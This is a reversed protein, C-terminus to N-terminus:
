FLIMTSYPERNFITVDKIYRKKAIFRIAREIGLGAGVTKPLLKAKALQLYGRFNETSTYRAAMKKKLRVYDNETESGTLAEGFGEPWILDFSIHYGTVTQTIVTDDSPDSQLDRSTVIPRFIWFPDKSRNSVLEEYNSGFKEKLDGAVYREFKRPIPLLAGRLKKLQDSYNENLRKFIHKILDETFDLVYEHTKNKFEFDVMSFEFLHKQDNVEHEPELRIDPYIIYVAEINPNSLIIQKRIIKNTGKSLAFLQHSYNIKVNVTRRKDNVVHKNTNPDFIKHEVNGTIPSLLLPQINLVGKLGMFEHIAKLMGEQLKLLSALQKSQVHLLADYVDASLMRRSRIAITNNKM